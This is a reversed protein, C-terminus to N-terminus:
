PYKIADVLPQLQKEYRRWAEVSSKYIPRIVQDKSATLVTRKQKHPKLCADDWELGVYDILRRAQEEFNNVTEEYQVEIFQDPLLAKWYEMLEAFKNYHGALTELTYSWYHGTAFNQKYCSLCNDIPDRRCLIIKAQPLMCRILGINNCHGPMKDTIRLAKGTVDRAKIKDVYAQGMAAANAPTMPGMERIVTGLDPLEGAGYVQPHSSIIQETLTTGSRPMGLIFVPIDSDYGKGEYEKMFAPTFTAKKNEVMNSEQLEKFPLSDRKADNAAKLCEFAQEYEGVDEYAKFLSFNLIAKGELGYNDISEALKKM